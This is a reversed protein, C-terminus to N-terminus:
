RLASLKRMLMTGLSFIETKNIATEMAVKVSKGEKLKRFFVDRHIHNSKIETLGSNYRRVEAIDVEVFDINQYEMAMEGKNSNVLVISVGKDDDLEPHLDWVGWYDGITIDSNSRGMKAMCHSCSPRTSMNMTFCKMYEGSAPIHYEQCDKTSIALNYRYNSWGTTKDRFNVSSIREKDAIECLYRDWVFPSPVSHCIVDITLLNQYDKRLFHHLGAIQCHTGSYLVQRGSDLFCKAKQYTSGVTAQVYKSGRFAVIGELNETYDMVVQWSKDFRAGFVVGGNNIVCEALASFMGGSSSQERVNDNINKVGLCAIPEISEYPHLVACVKSCLNCKICADNDVMVPYLFGEGDPQMMLCQKPCANVCASCGCCQQKDKISM